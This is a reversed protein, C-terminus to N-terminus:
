HPLRPRLLGYLWAGALASVLVVIMVTAGGGILTYIPGPCAGTLAWGFGFLIGGAIHRVGVPRRERAIRPTGDSEPALKFRDLIQLSVAAVLIASGIVGYMHFSQFRFMEQIRFWSVVEGKLLVIGFFIGLVLYTALQAPTIARETSKPTREQISLSM